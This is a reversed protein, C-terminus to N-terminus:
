QEGGNLRRRPRRETPKGQHRKYRDIQDLYSRTSDFLLDPHKDGEAPEPWEVSSFDPEDERLEEAIVQYLAEARERWESAEKAIPALQKRIPKLQELIEDLEARLAELEAEHGPVLSQNLTAIEDELARNQEAVRDSLTPDYYHQVETEILDSLVGPHLAELADLETAGEGHREEFTGKGRDTEKIPARPLKLGVCQQKTLALPIVQIDLDLGREALSFEIERAVAVPMSEGQPDFDSIYLIRVPRERSRARGVLERCHKIGVQGNFGCYNMGYWMALPVCVDEVDSKEVWIELIYRQPVKRAGSLRWRPLEPLQLEVPQVSSFYAPENLLATPEPGEYLDMYDRRVAPRKDEFDDADLLGLYRAWKDATKLQSWCVTKNPYPAGGVTPVPTPQVVLRYQLRRLHGGRAPMHRRWLEAFWKAHAVHAPTCCGFPDAGHSLVTLTSAPRVLDQALRTLAEYGLPASM